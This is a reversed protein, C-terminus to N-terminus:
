LEITIAISSEDDNTIIITYSSAKKPTKQPPLPIAQLDQVATARIAKTTIIKNRKAARLSDTRIQLQQMAIKVKEGAMKREYLPLGSIKQQIRPLNQSLITTSLDEPLQFTELAPMVNSWYTNAEEIWYNKQMEIAANEISQQVTAIQNGWSEDTTFTATAITQAITDKKLGAVLKPKPRINNVEEIVVELATEAQTLPLEVYTPHGNKNLYEVQTNLEKQLTNTLFFAPNYLPNKITAAMPQKVVQKGAQQQSSSKTSRLATFIGGLFITIFVLMFLKKTYQYKAKPEGLMRRVRQLLDQQNVLPLALLPAKNCAITLLAAAYTSPQYKFQLVWDDCSHERERLIAKSLLRSFPNFFLITDIVSLLLNLLYDHRRIHALEHLLVAEMQSVTLRNISALPILIVPKFFGFTIPTSVTASTYVSVKQQIGLRAAMKNVFLRWEIDMKETSTKKFLQITKYAQIWQVLLITLVLLYAISLYPLVQEAWVMTNYLFTKWNSTILSTTIVQDQPLSFKTFGNYQQYYFHLTSCFWAFGAFQLLVAVNHRYSAQQKFAKILLQYFLWLFAMQWLSATIAYGLSSLFPSLTIAQM